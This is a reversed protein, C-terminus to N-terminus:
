ASRVRKADQSSDDAAGKVENEERSRKTSAPKLSSPLKLELKEDGEQDSIFDLFEDDEYTIVDADAASSDAVAYSEDSTAIPVGDRPSLDDTIEELYETTTEPGKLIEEHGDLPSQQPRPTTQEEEVRSDREDLLEGSEQFGQESEDIPGDDRLEHIKSTDASDEGDDEDHAIPELGASGDLDQRGPSQPFYESQKAKANISSLQDGDVHGNDEKENDAHQFGNVQFNLDDNRGSLDKNGIHHTEATETAINDSLNETRGLAKSTTVPDAENNLAHDNLAEIVDDGALTSSGTSDYTVPEDGDEYDILDGEEDDARDLDHSTVEDHSGRPGSANGPLSTRDQTKT